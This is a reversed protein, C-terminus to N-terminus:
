RGALTARAIDAVASVRAGRPDDRRIRGVLRLLAAQPRSLLLSELAPHLVVALRCPESRYGAQRKFRDMQGAPPHPKLGTSVCHVNSRTIMRRTFEYYLVHNPHHPRAWESSFMHLGHCIGQDVFYLLYAALTGRYFSGLAGAGPTLRGAECYRRWRDPELFRPDRYGRRALADRNVPLGIREMEDFDIERVECVEAGKQINQRFTRSPSASGYDKDRVAYGYSQLGYEAATAFQVGALRHRRLFSRLEERSPDILRMGPLSQFVRSSADFWAASETHLVRHGAARYFRALLDETM